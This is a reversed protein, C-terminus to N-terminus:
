SPHGEAEAEGSTGAPGDNGKATPDAAKEEIPGGRERQAERARGAALEQEGLHETRNTQDTV